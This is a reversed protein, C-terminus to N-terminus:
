LSLRSLATDSHRWMYGSVPDYSPPTSPPTPPLLPPCGTSAAAVIMSYDSSEVRARVALSPRVPHCQCPPPCLAVSTGILLFLPIKLTRITISLLGPGGSSILSSAASHPPHRRGKCSGEAALIVTAGPIDNAFVVLLPPPPPPFSGGGVVVEGEDKKVMVVLITSM